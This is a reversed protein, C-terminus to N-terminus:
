ERDQTRVGMSELMEAVKRERPGRPAIGHKQEGGTKLFAAEVIKAVQETEPNVKFQVRVWEKNFAPRINCVTVQTELDKPDAVSSAHTLITEKESQQLGNDDKATMIISAWVHIHPSGLGHARGAAKVAAHYDKGAQIGAEAYTSSAPLMWTRLLAADHVRVTSATMLALEAASVALRKVQEM